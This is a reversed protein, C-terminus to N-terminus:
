SMAECVKRDRQQKMWIGLFKGVMRTWGSPCRDQCKEEPLWENM